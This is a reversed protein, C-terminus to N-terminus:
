KQVVRASQMVPLNYLYSLEYSSRCHATYTLTTSEHDCLLLLVIGTFYSQSKMVSQMNIELQLTTLDEYLIRITTALPDDLSHTGLGTM